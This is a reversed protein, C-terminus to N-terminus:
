PMFRNVQNEFWDVIARVQEPANRGDGYRAFYEVAQRPTAEQRPNHHGHGYSSESGTFRALGKHDFAVTDYDSGDQDVGFRILKIQARSAALLEQAATGYQALFIQLLPTVEDILRNLDAESRAWAAAQAERQTAAALRASEAQQKEAAQDALMRAATTRWSDRM